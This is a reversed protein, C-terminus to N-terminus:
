VPIVREHSSTRKTSVFPMILRAASKLVAPPINLVPRKLPIRLRAPLKLLELIM